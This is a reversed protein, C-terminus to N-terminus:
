AALKQGPKRRALLHAREEPSVVLARYGLHWLYRRVYSHSLHHDAAIAKLPATGALIAALVRSKRQDALATPLKPM